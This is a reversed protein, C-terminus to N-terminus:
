TPINRDNKFYLALYLILWWIDSQESKRDLLLAISAATKLANKNYLVCKYTGLEYSLWLRGFKPFFPASMEGVKPFM